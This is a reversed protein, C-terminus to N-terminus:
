VIKFEFPGIMVPDKPKKKKLKRPQYDGWPVLLARRCKEIGEENAQALAEKEWHESWSMSRFTRSLSVLNWPDSGGMECMDENYNLCSFGFAEELWEYSLDPHRELFLFVSVTITKEM